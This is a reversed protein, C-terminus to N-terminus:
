AGVAAPVHGLFRDPWPQNLDTAKTGAPVAIVQQDEVDRGVTYLVGMADLVFIDIDTVM